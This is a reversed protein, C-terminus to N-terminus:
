SRGSEVHRRALTKMWYSLMENREHTLHFFKVGRTKGRTESMAVHSAFPTLGVSYRAL